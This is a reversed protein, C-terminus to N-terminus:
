SRRRRRARAHWPYLPYAAATSWYHQWASGIEQAAAKGRWTSSHSSSASERWTPPCHVGVRECPDRFARDICCVDALYLRCVGRAEDATLTPADRSVRRARAHYRSKAAAATNELMDLEELMTEMSGLYDLRRGATHDTGRSIM